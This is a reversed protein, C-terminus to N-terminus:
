SVQLLVTKIFSNIAPNFLEWDKDEIGIGKFCWLLIGGLFKVTLGLQLIIVSVHLYLFTHFREVKGKSFITFFDLMNFNDSKLFTSNHTTVHQHSHLQRKLRSSVTILHVTNQSVSINQFVGQCRLLLNPVYKPKPVFHLVFVLPCRLTSTVSICHPFIFSKSDIVCHALNPMESDNVQFIKRSFSNWFNCIRTVVLYVKTSNPLSECSTIWQM